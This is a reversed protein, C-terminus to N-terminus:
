KEAAVKDGVDTPNQLDYQTKEVKEGGADCSASAPDHTISCGHVLDPMDNGDDTEEDQEEQEEEGAASKRGLVTQEGSDWNFVTDEDDPNSTAGPTNPLRVPPPLRRPPTLRGYPGPRYRFTAEGATFMTGPYVADSDNDQLLNPSLQTAQSDLQQQSVASPSTIAHHPYMPVSHGLQHILGPFQRNVSGDSSRPETAGAYSDCSEGM